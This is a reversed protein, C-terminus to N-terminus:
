QPHVKPLLFYNILAMSFVSHTVTNYTFTGPIVPPIYGPFGRPNNPAARSSSLRHAKAASLLRPLSLPFLFSALLARMAQPAACCERREEHTVKLDRTGNSQIWCEIWAHWSHLEQSHTLGASDRHHRTPSRVTAALFATRPCHIFTSVLTCV